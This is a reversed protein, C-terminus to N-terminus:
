FISSFTTGIFEKPVSSKQSGKQGSSTAFYYCIWIVRNFIFKVTDDIPRSPLEPSFSNPWNLDRGWSCYIMLNNRAKWYCSSKQCFSSSRQQIGWLSQKSSVRPSRPTSDPRSSGCSGLHSGDRYCSGSRGRSYWTTPMIQVVVMEEMNKNLNKVVSIM